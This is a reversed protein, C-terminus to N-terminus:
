LVRHCTQSVRRALDFELSVWHGVANKVQVGIAFVGGANWDSLTAYKEDVIKRITVVSRPYTDHLHFVVPAVLPSGDISEVVLSFYFLDKEVSELVARVARGERRAKGGWRQKQLDDAHVVPPTPLSRM